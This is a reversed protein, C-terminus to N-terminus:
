LDPFTYDTYKSVLCLSGILKLGQAGSIFLAIFSHWFSFENEIVMILLLFSWYNTYDDKGVSKWCIWFWHTFETSYKNKNKIEYPEITIYNPMYFLILIKLIRVFCGKFKKELYCLQDFIISISRIRWFCVIGSRYRIKM